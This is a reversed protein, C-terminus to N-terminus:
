RRQIEGVVDNGIRDVRQIRGPHDLDGARRLRERARDCRRLNEVAVARGLTWSKSAPVPWLQLLGDTPVFAIMMQM